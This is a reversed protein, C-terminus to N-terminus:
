GASGMRLPDRMVITTRSAMSLTPAGNRKVYHM